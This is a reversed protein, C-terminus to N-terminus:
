PSGKQSVMLGDISLLHKTNSSTVRLALGRIKTDYYYIRKNSTPNSLNQLIAKKFNFKNDM